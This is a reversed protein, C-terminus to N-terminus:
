GAVRVRDAGGSLCCRLAAQLQDSRYPKEVLPRDAHRAPLGAEAYGSAFIFPIGRDALLDAVPDVRAGALNVDLVALDLPLDRARQLAGQLGGSSLIVECGMDGIIDQLALRLIAEDEVVLVRKGKLSM